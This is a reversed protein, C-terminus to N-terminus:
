ETISVPLPLVSLIYGSDNFILKYDEAGRTVRTEYLLDGSSSKIVISQQIRFARYTERLHKRIRKPLSKKSITSAEAMYNGQFDFLVYHPKNRLVFAAQYGEPEQTWTVESGLHPHLDALIIKSETPM